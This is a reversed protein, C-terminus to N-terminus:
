HNYIHHRTTLKFFLVTGAQADVAPGTRGGAARHLTAKTSRHQISCGAIRQRAGPNSKRWNAGALYTLLGAPATDAAACENGCLHLAPHRWRGPDPAAVRDGGASNSNKRDGASRSLRFLIRNFCTEDLNSLSFTNLILPPFISYPGVKQSQSIHLVSQSEHTRKCEYCQANSFSPM